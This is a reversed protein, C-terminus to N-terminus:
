SATSTAAHAAAVPRPRHAPRRARRGAAPQPGAARRRPSPRAPRVPSPVPPGGEEFPRDPAAACGPIPGPRPPRRRPAPPPATPPAPRRASWGHGARSRRAPAPPDSPHLRAARRQRRGAPRRGPLRGPPVPRPRDAGPRHPTGPRPRGRAVRQLHGPLPRERQHGPAPGPPAPRPEPPGHHRRAPLRPGRRAHRGAPLAPQPLEPVRRHVPRRGPPRDRAAPRPPRRGALDPRRHVVGVLQATEEGLIGKPLRALCLGGNDLVQSM